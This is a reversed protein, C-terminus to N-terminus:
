NAGLAAIHRANRGKIDIRLLMENKIGETTLRGKAWDWVIQMVDLIGWCAAVHWANRGEHETRLLMENKTEETTQREKAWEWIEQM